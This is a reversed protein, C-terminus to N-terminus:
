SNGTIYPRIADEFDSFEVEPGAQTRTIGDRARMEYPCEAPLAGELTIEAIKGQTDPNFLFIEQVQQEREIFSLDDKADNEDGYACSEVVQTTNRVCIVIDTEERNAARWQPNLDDHMSGVFPMGEKLVVAQMPYSGRPLHSNSATGGRIPDCIRPIDEGFAEQTAAVEHQFLAFIGGIGTGACAFLMGCLIVMILLKNMIRIGEKHYM